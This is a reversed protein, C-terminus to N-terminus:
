LIAASSHMDLRNACNRDGLVEMFYAATVVDAPGALKRSNM